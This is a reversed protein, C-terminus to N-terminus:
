LPSLSERAVDRGVQEILPIEDDALVFVQQRTPQEIRQAHHRQNMEDLLIEGDVHWGLIHRDFVEHRQTRDLRVEPPPQLGYLLGFSPPRLFSSPPRRLTTMGLAAITM